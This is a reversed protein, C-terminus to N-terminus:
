NFIRVQNSGNWATQFLRLGFESNSVPAGDYLSFTADNCSDKLILFNDKTPYLAKECTGNPDSPAHRDFAIFDNEARRYVIIGRSGGNVYTWGGVGQLDSYTPLNIDITIDTAVSPVPHNRNKRCGSIVCLFTLFLIIQVKM